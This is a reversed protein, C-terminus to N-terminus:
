KLIECKNTQKMEGTPHFLALPVPVLEYLIVKKFDIYRSSSVTVLRSFLDQHYKLTKTKENKKTSTKIFKVDSNFTVLNLKKIPDWYSVAREMLREQTYTMTAEQGISKADLVQENTSTLLM